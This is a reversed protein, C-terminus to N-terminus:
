GAAQRRERNKLMWEVALKTVDVKRAAKGSELIQDALEAKRQIIELIQEDFSNSMVYYYITINKARNGTRDIRGIRQELLTHDWPLDIMVMYNAVQLNLGTSAADTAVFAKVSPDEVFRRVAEEKESTPLQGHYLVSNPLERHIIEAMRAFRTFIVVKSEPEDYTMSKYFEKLQEIKPSKFDKDTIALEKVIQDAMTSGSMHFLELTDCAGVLFNYYGQVRADIADLAEETSVLQGHLFQFSKGSSRLKSSEERAEAIKELIADHVQAQKPTMDLFLHSHQVEPLQQQIEPMDKTRRIFHPAIRYHLEGMNQYGNIGYRPHYKCYRERFREWPGLINEDLFYFLSWIEEAKGVVPTATALFRYPIHRLQHVAAANQSPKLRLMKDTVGTKIKQAEDLAVIDLPLKKIRELYDKTRFTEYNVILFRVDSNEFKEIAGIRQAPTGAVVIADEGTFKDIERAWQRKLSNLTVILARRAKGREFLRMCAGILQPTKGLGCGDFTAACGRDVLFNAGVKQYPYLPVKFSPFDTDQEWQLHRQVLEDEIPLGEAEVIERLPTMWIIQNPFLVLLRSVQERGCMWEGTKLNFSRGPITRIKELTFDFTEQSDLIKMYLNGFQMRVQIM